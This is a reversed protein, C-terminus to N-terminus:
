VSGVGQWCAVIFFISASIVSAMDILRLEGEDKPMLSVDWPV